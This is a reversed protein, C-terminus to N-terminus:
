GDFRKDDDRMDGNEYENEDADDEGANRVSM